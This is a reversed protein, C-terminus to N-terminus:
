LEIDPNTQKTRKHFRSYNRRSNLFTPLITSLPVVWLVTGNIKFYNHAKLAQKKFSYKELENAFKDVSFIVKKSCVIKIDSVYVSFSKSGM